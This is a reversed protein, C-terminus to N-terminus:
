FSKNGTVSLTRGAATLPAPTITFTQALSPGGGPGPNTVTVRATGAAALLAAPVTAQLQGGSAATVALATGNWQVTSTTLFASGNLTLTFAGSGETLSPTA